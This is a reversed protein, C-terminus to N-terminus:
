RWALPVWNPPIGPHREDDKLIEDVLAPCLSILLKGAMAVRDHCFAHKFTHPLLDILSHIHTFIYMCRHIYSHSSTYIDPYTSTSTVTLRHICAHTHIHIVTHICAHTHSHSHIHVCAHTHPLILPDMPPHKVHSHIFSHIYTFTHPHITCLNSVIHICAHIFTHVPQPHM